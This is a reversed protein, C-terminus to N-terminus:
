PTRARFFLQQQIGISNTTAMFGYTGLTNTSIGFWSNPVAANTTAELIWSAHPDGQFLVAVRGDGINAIGLTVPHPHVVEVMSNSSGLFNGDGLYVATASYSGPLLAALNM